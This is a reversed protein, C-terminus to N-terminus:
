DASFSKPKVESASLLKRGLAIYRYATPYRTKRGYSDEQPKWGFKDNIGKYSAGADRMRACTIAKDHDIGRKIKAGIRRLLHHKPLVMNFDGFYSLTRISDRYFEVDQHSFITPPLPRPATGKPFIEPM